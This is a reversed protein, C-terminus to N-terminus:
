QDKPLWLDITMPNDAIQDPTVKLRFVIAQTNSKITPQLTETITKSDQDPNTYDLDIYQIIQRSDDMPPAEKKDYDYYSSEKILSPMKEITTYEDNQFHNIAIAQEQDEENYQIKDKNKNNSFEKYDNIIKKFDMLLMMRGSSM